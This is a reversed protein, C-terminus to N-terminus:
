LHLRASLMLAVAALRSTVGLDDILAPPRPALITLM